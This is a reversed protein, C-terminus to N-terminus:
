SRQKNLALIHERGKWLGKRYEQLTSLLTLNPTEQLKRPRSNSLWNLIFNYTGKRKQGKPSNLWLVMKGLEEDIDINTHAAKLSRYISDNLGVFRNSVRDFYISTSKEKGMIIFINSLNHVEQLIINGFVCELPM